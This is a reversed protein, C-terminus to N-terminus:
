GRQLVCEQVPAVMLLLKPFENARFWPLQVWNLREVQELIETGFNYQGWCWWARFSASRRTNVTSMSYDGRPLNRYPNLRRLEFRDISFVSTSSFRTEKADESNGQPYDEAYLYEQAFEYCKEYFEGGKHCPECRAQMIGPHRTQGAVASSWVNDKTAVRPYILRRKGANNGEVRSIWDYNKVEQLVITRTEL